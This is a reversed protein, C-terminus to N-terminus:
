KSVLGVSTDKNQCKSLITEALNRYIGDEPIGEQRVVELAEDFLAAERLFEAYILKSEVSFIGILERVVGRFEELEEESPQHDEQVSGRQYEDNYAWIYELFLNVRDKKGAGSRLAALAERMDPYELEGRESSYDDGNRHRAREYFFYGGCAPCKQVWSVHPLMPYFTKLDWWQKGGFTNGSELTLLSKEAKCHPCKVILALGPLM